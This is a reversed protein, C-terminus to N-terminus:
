SRMAELPDIKTVMKVSFLGGLFAFFLFLLTIIAFFYWNILFPVSNPLFLSTIITLILGTLVGFGAVLLTKSVVYFNIYNNQIGQAKMVGFMNIKQITLVYIFIGIVLASILILFGIMLGFTAVQASYGPLKFIYEGIPMIKLDPNDTTADGRVVIANILSKEADFKKGFRYKSFFNFSGYIVPSVQFTANKTFGVIKVKEEFDGAFYIDDNLKLGDDKVSEDIVIENDNEFFRGETLEPAIFSNRGIAFINANLNNDLNEETSRIIAPFSSLVAKEEASIDDIVKPNLMSMSINDNSDKNYIIATAQFKDIANTYSSALGYALGTLFFVLYSILFIVGIILLFKGKEYKLEKGALFM